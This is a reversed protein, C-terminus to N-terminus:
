LAEEDRGSAGTKQEQRGGKGGWGAFSRWMLGCQEAMEKEARREQQGETTGM